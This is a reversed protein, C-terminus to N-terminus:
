ARAHARLLVTTPLRGFRARNFGLVVYSVSTRVCTAVGIPPRRYSVNVILRGGTHTWGDVRVDFVCSQGDLFGAFVVTKSLDVAEVRARHAPTLRDVWPKLAAKRAALYARPAPAGVPATTGQLSWSMQTDAAAAASVCLLAAVLAARHILNRRGV